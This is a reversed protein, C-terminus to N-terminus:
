RSYKLDLLKQYFKDKNQEVMIYNWEKKKPRAKKAEFEGFAIGLPFEFKEISGAPNIFYHSPFREAGLAEVLVEADSIIRFNLPRKELTREVRYRKHSTVSLLIIDETKGVAYNLIPIEALCPQCTTEWVNIYVHKGEM